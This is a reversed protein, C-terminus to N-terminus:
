RFLLYKQAWRSVKGSLSLSSSLSFPHPFHTSDTSHLPGFLYPQLVHLNSTFSEGLHGVHFLFEAKKVCWAFSGSAVFGWIGEAYFRVLWSVSCTSTARLVEAWTDLMLFSSQRKHPWNRKKKLIVKLYKYFVSLNNFFLYFNQYMM